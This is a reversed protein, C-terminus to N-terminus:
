NWSNKQQALRESRKGPRNPHKRSFGCNTKYNEPRHKTGSQFALRLDQRYNGRIPKLLQWEHLADSLASEIAALLDKRVSSYTRQFATFRRQRKARQQSVNSETGSNQKVRQTHGETPTPVDAQKTIPWKYEPLTAIGVLANPIIGGTGNWM